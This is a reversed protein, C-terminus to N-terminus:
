SGEAERQMRLRAGREAFQVILRKTLEPLQDASKLYTSIDDCETGDAMINRVIAGDPYVKAM